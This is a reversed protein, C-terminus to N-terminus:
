GRRQSRCGLPLCRPLAIRVREIRISHNPPRDLVCRRNIGLLTDCTDPRELLAPQQDSVEDGREPHATVSRGESM